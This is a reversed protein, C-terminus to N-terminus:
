QITLARDTYALLKSSRTVWCAIILWLPVKPLVISCRRANKFSFRDTWYDLGSTWDVLGTWRNYVAWSLWCDSSTVTDETKDCHLAWPQESRLPLTTSHVGHGLILNRCPALHQLSRQITSDISTCGPGAHYLVSLLIQDSSSVM